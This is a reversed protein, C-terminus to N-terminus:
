TAREPDPGARTLPLLGAHLTASGALIGDSDWGFSKGSLDTVTGGAERILLSGALWDAPDQGTEWYADLRGAAVYALQLSAAAMPRVVFVSRAVRGLLRLTEGQSAEGIQALPPVATGVVAARLDEKPSVLVPAGDCTAGRGSAALFTEGTTPDYVVALVPRGDRMLVLSSSWLPLGQLYHYAGDIPDYIWTDGTPSDGEEGTWGISPHLDALAAKMRFEASASVARVQGILEALSGDRAARPGDAAIGDAVRRVWDACVQLDTETM